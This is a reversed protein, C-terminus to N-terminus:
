GMAPQKNATSTWVGPRGRFSQPSVPHFEANAIIRFVPRLGFPGLIGGAHLSQPQAEDTDSFKGPAPNLRGRPLIVPAPEVRGNIGQCRRPEANAKARGRRRRWFPQDVGLGANQAAICLPPRPSEAGTSVVAETRQGITVMGAPDTGRHRRPIGVMWGDGQPLGVIFISAMIGNLAVVGIRSDCKPQPQAVFIVPDIRQIRRPPRNEPALFIAMEVLDIWRQGCHCLRMGGVLQVPSPEAGILHQAIVRKLGPDQPRMPRPGDGMIEHPMEGLEFMKLHARLKIQCAPIGIRQPEQLLGPPIVLGLSVVGAASMGIKCAEMM